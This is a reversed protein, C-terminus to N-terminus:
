GQMHVLNKKIVNALRAIKSGKVMSGTLGLYTNKFIKLQPLLTNQVEGVFQQAKAIKYDKEAKTKEPLKNIKNIRSLSFRDGLSTSSFKASAIM